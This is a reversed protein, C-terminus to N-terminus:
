EENSLLDDLEDRWSKNEKGSSIPTASKVGIVSKAKNVQKAQELELAKKNIMEQYLEPNLRQAKEYAVQLSDGKSVFYDMDNALEQLHPHLLEGNADKEEAFAMVEREFREREQEQRWRDMLEADHRELNKQEVYQQNAKGTLIEQLREATIGTNNCYNILFQEPNRSAYVDMQCLKNLYTPLDGYKAILLDRNDLAQEFSRYKDLAVKDAEFGKRENALEQFKKQYGKDYDKLKEIVIHRGNKDQIGNVFDKLDKAWGEPAVEEVVQTDEVTQEPTTEEPTEDGVNTEENNEIDENLTDEM